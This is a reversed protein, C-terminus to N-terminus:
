KIIHLIEDKKAKIASQEKEIIEQKEKLKMLTNRVDGIVRTIQDKSTSIKSHISWASFIDDFFYDAFKVFGDTNVQLNKADLQEIDLLENKFRQLAIQAHHINNESEDLKEHKLHTAIFGGGFFTDWTSYSSASNLSDQANYLKNLAIEGASKAEEIEILLNRCNLEADMLGQLEFAKEPQNEKLWLEKKIIVMELQQKLKQENLQSLEQKTYELDNSLDQNMLKAENLKLELAAAKDSEEELLEDQKGTWNRYLNIFSFSDLHQLKEKKSQLQETYEIIEREIKVIQDTLTKEKAKLKELKKLQLYISEQEVQLREWDM